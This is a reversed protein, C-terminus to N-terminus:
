PAYLMWTAPPSTGSGNAPRTDKNRAISACSARDLTTEFQSM